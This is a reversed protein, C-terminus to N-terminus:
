TKRPQKQELSTFKYMPSFYLTSIAVHIILFFFFCRVYYSSISAKVKIHLTALQEKRSGWMKFLSLPNKSTCKTKTCINRRAGRTESSVRSYQGTRVSGTGDIVDSLFSVSCHSDYSLFGTFRESQPPLSVQGYTFLGRTNAYHGQHLRPSFPPAFFGRM